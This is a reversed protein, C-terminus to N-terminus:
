IKSIWEVIITGSDLAPAGAGVVFIIQDSTTSLANVDIYFSIQGAIAVTTAPILGFTRTGSRYTGYMQVIQSIATLKFGLDINATTTFNYVQRLSQQRSANFFYGNGTISPRNVSYIGITRVNIASATDIYSKNMEVSLQGIEEPFSSSRLYAVQNVVNTFSM